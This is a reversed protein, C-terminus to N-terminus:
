FSVQELREAGVLGVIHGIVLSTIALMAPIFAIKCTNCRDYHSADHLYPAVGGSVLCTRQEDSVSLCLLCVSVAHRLSLAWLSLGHSGLPGLTPYLSCIMVSGYFLVGYQSM